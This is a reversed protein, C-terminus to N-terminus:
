STETTVIYTQTHSRIECVAASFPRSPFPECSTGIYGRRVDAGADLRWGIYVCGTYYSCAIWQYRQISIRLLWESNM